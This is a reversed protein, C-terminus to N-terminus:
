LLAWGMLIGWILGFTAGVLHAETTARRTKWIYLGFALEVSRAPDRWTMHHGPYIQRSAERQDIIQERAAAEKRALARYFDNKDGVKRRRERKMM